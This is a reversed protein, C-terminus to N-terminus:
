RSMILNIMNLSSAHSVELIYNPQIGFFIIMLTLIFLSWFEDKQLVKMNKVTDSSIEGFLIRKGLWLSYSAALVLTTSALIAYASSIELSAVLVMFEGVFGSTGPLGSNSMLFFMMLASFIPMIQGIGSQEDISRSKTRTYIIGICIFLGASILGHSIMQMLSGQLGMLIMENNLTNSTEFINFTLFIGLTVFGMHAISSYAILKKMDKQALAVFSIYIIAILSLPVIIDNLYIGADPTIPLLFRIMGYGGVKLLVAALIVSGSSPAQVHADPLWTHVPWMPIKIGFAILFALFLYIQTDLPLQLNYFDQIFFSSSQISLYILSILMLVSGILTYIFFKITAYVRNTGGWIGIILFLPILMAEFFIYFLISDFACFVGIIIGELTLFLGIFKNNQGRDESFSYLIIISSVITTLLIFIMSFGDIALHYNINLNEIWIVKQEFQLGSSNLDFQHFLYFSLTLVFISIIYSWIKIINNKVHDMFLLILGGVIPTWILISLIPLNFTYM